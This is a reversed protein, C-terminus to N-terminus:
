SKYPKATTTTNNTATHCQMKPHDVLNVQHNPNQISQLKNNPHKPSKKIQINNREEKSPIMLHVVHKPNKGFCRVFLGQVVRSVRGQDNVKRIKQKLDGLGYPSLGTTTKTSAPSDTKPPNQWNNQKKTQPHSQWSRNVSFYVKLNSRESNLVGYNGNITYKGVNIGQFDVIYIIYIIYIYTFIVNVHIRYPILSLGFFFMWVAFM